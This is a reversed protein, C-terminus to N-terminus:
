EEHCLCSCYEDSPECQCERCGYSGQKNFSVKDMKIQKGLINNIIKSSYM